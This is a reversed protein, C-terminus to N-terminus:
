SLATVECKRTQPDVLSECVQILMRSRDHGQVIFDVERGSKCKFYFIDPTTRRLATFVMNELLHGNNILIGSSISTVLAHDICYIKQSQRQVHLPHTLSACHQFGMSPPPHTQAGRFAAVARISGSKKIVPPTFIASQSGSLAANQNQHRDAGGDEHRRSNENRALCSQLAPFGRTHDIRM